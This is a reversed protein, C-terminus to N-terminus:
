GAIFRLASRTLENTTDPGETCGLVIPVYVQDNVAAPYSPRPGAPFANPAYVGFARGHGSHFTLLIHKKTLVPNETDWLTEWSTDWLANGRIAGRARTRTWGLIWQYMGAGGVGVLPELGLDLEVEVDTITKTARTATGVDQVFASGGSVPACDHSQLALADPFTRASREWYAGEFEWDITAKGGVPSSFKVKSLQCGFAIFQAGTTAHLMHFRKTVLVAGESHHAMMCPRLVDAANPAGPAATLLTLPTTTTVGNIVIQGDGRGDGKSGLRIAGGRLVTAGSFPISTATAGGSVTGGVETVSNGGLCDGLLQQQWTETLAGTPDTIHGMWYTKFKVRCRRPGKHGPVQVALRAQASGDEERDHTPEFTGDLIPLNKEWTASSPSAIFEGFSAEDCVLLQRIGFVEAM